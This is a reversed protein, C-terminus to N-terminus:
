KFYKMCPAYIKLQLYNLQFIDNLKQFANNRYKKEAMNNCKYIAQKLM